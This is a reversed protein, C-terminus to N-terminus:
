EQPLINKTLDFEGLLIQIHISLVSLLRLHGPAKVQYKEPLYWKESHLTVGLKEIAV